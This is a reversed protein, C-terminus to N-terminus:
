KVKKFSLHLKEAIKGKLNIELVTQNIIKSFDKHM